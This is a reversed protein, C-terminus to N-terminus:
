HGLISKMTQGTVKQIQWSKFSALKNKLQFVLPALHLHKIKWGKTLQGEVLQSDTRIILEVDKVGMSIVHDLADRLALYEAENNTMNGYENFHTTILHMDKDYLAFSGYAQRKLADQNNLAGGDCYITLHTM